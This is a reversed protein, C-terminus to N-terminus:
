RVPELVVIPIKRETKSQQADLYEVVGALREREAGEATRARVEFKQDGVEITAQPHALLNLYWAPHSPAGGAAAIAVYIEGSRRYGIVTTRPQGTRAGTTTLLLVKSAAMQGSLKGGNARFEEIVKRNFDNMDAPIQPRQSM